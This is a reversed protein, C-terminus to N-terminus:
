FRWSQWNIIQWQQQQQQQKYGCRKPSRQCLLTPLMLHASLFALCFAKLIDNM